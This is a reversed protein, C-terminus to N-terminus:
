CSTKVNSCTSHQMQKAKVHSPLAESHKAAARSIRQKVMHHLAATVYLEADVQGPLAVPLTKTAPNTQHHQEPWAMCCSASM